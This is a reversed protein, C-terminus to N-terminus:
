TEVDSPEDAGTEVDSSEDEAGTDVDSPEDARNVSVNQMDSPEDAGPEVDFPQGHVDFPEAM